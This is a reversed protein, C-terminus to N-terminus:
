SVKQTEAHGPVGYGTPNPRNPGLLQLQSVLRPWFNGHPQLLEARIISLFRWGWACMAAASKPEQLFQLPAYALYSPRPVLRAFHSQNQACVTAATFALVVRDSCCLDHDVLISDSASGGGIVGGNGGHSRLSGSLSGAWATYSQCM